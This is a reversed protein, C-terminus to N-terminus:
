PLARRTLIGDFLAGLMTQVLPEVPTQPFSPCTLKLSVIGHVGVWFVDAIAGLSAEDHAEIAGGAALAALPAILAQYARAGPDSPDRQTALMANTIEPDEMFMLRYTEPHALGFAVYARGVAELRERPDAIQEAPEFAEVLLAFGEGSVAAAIADRNEFYQYIAAPSYEVAEAIRRMTLAKYGESVVIRRAAEVIQARLEERQRIRRQVAGM